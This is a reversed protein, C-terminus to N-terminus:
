KGGSVAYKIPSALNAFPFVIWGIIVSALYGGWEPTGTSVNLKTFYITGVINLILYIVLTISVGTVGMGFFATADSEASREVVNKEPEPTSSM